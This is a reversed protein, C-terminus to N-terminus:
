KRRKKIPYKKMSLIIYGGSKSISRRQKFQTPTLKRRVTYTKGKRFVNPKYKAVGRITRKPKFKIKYWAM